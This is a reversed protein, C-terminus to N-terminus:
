DPDRHELDEGYQQEKLRVPYPRLSIGTATRKSCWHWRWLWHPQGITDMEGLKNGKFRWHTPGESAMRLMRNLNEEKTNETIPYIEHKELILRFSDITTYPSGFEESYDRFLQNISKCIRHEDLWLIEEIPVDGRRVGIRM